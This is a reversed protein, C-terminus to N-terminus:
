YPKLNLNPLYVFILILLTKNEYHILRIQILNKKKIFGM